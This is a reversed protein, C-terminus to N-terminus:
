ADKIGQIHLYDIANQITQIKEADEDAIELKKDATSFEEEMATILEVLDLSDVNLDDAFSTAPTLIEEKIDLQEAILKKLRGLVTAM